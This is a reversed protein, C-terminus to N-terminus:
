PWTSLARVTESSRRDGPWTRQSGPSCFGLWQESTGGSHTGLGCDRGLCLRVGAGGSRSSGWGRLGGATEMGVWGRDLGGLVCLHM